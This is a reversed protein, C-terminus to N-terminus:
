DEKVIIKEIEAIYLTHYDSKPYWVELLKKDLFCKEEFNQNYLKRCFVTMKAEEYYPVGDEFLMSLGSEGIKDEERGSVTGFYNLMKKYDNNFFSLSFKDSMDIFEKTYRQPRVVIFAVNKAWMFGVGGWSATMANVHGGGAASVLMWEKILKFANEQLEVPTIEKFQTM